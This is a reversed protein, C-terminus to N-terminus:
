HAPLAKQNKLQTQTAGIALKAKQRSASNRATQWSSNLEQQGQKQKQKM